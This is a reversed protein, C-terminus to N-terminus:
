AQPKVVAPLQPWHSFIWTCMKSFKRFKNSHVAASLISIFSVRHSKSSNLVLSSLLQGSSTMEKRCSHLGVVNIRNETRRASSSCTFNVLKLQPFGSAACMRLQSATVDQPRWSSNAPGDLPHPLPPLSGRAGLRKTPRAGGNSLFIFYM